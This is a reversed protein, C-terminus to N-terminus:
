CTVWADTTLIVVLMLKYESSFIANYYSVLKEYKVRDVKVGGTDNCEMIEMIWLRWLLMFKNLLSRMSRKARIKTYFSAITCAQMTFPVCNITLWTTCGVTKMQLKHRTVYLDTPGVAIRPTSQEFLGDSQKVHLIMQTAKSESYYRLAVWCSVVNWYWFNTQFLQNNANKETFSWVFGSSSM